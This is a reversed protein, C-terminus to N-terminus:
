EGVAPVAETAGPATNQARVKKVYRHTFTAPVGFALVQAAARIVVGAGTAECILTIVAGAAFSIAGVQAIVTSTHRFGATRWIEPPTRRKAIGLTFPQRVLLSV